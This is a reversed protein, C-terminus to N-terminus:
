QNGGGSMTALQAYYEQSKELMETFVSSVYVKNLETVFDQIVDFSPYQITIIQQYQKKLNEFDIDIIKFKPQDKLVKIKLFAQISYHRTQQAITSLQEKEEPSMKELVQKIQQEETKKEDPVIKSKILVMANSYNGLMTNLALIEQAFTLIYTSATSQEAM